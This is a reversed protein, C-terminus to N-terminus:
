WGRELLAVAADGFDGSGTVLGRRANAVQAKGATGRLQKVAETVHNIGWLHAQSLLGGHTNVPLAGGVETAGSAVFEAVDGPTCFGLDELQWLVNFTFADYLEAFDVDETSWGAMAFARQGAAKMGSSMFRYRTVLQDPKAPHSEAVGRIVVHETRGPEHASVVYAAGGDTERSCDYLRLPSSIIRAAQHQEITIEEKAMGLGNMVAHRSQAQAVYGFPETSSWGHEHLFRQAWLAYFQAPVSVGHVGEYNRRLRPSEGLVMTPTKHGMRAGSRGNYGYSVLVNRAVGSTVALRAHHLAAVPGAGGMIMTATLSLDELGLNTMLDEVNATIIAPVVVGDIDKSRLGADDIATKAAELALRLNSRGSEKSFETEGIGVIAAAPVAVDASV